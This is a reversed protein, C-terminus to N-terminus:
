GRANHGLWLVLARARDSENMDLYTEFSEDSILVDCVGDHEFRAQCGLRSSPRRDRAALDLMDREADTVPSLLEAGHEIYVHCKSCACVGGCHSGEPAGCRQAAELITTGRPVEIELAVRGFRVLPM